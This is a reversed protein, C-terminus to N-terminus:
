QIPPSGSFSSGDWRFPPLCYLYTDSSSPKYDLNAVKKLNNRTVEDNMRSYSIYCYQKRGVSDDYDAKRILPPDIYNEDMWDGTTKLNNIFPSGSTANWRIIKCNSPDYTEDFPNVIPNVKFFESINDFSYKEGFKTDMMFNCSILLRMGMNYENDEDINLFPNGFQRCEGLFNKLTRHHYLAATVTGLKGFCERRLCNDVIESPIIINKLSIDSCANVFERLTTPINGKDTYLPNNDILTKILSNVTINGVRGIFLYM